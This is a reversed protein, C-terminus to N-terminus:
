LQLIHRCTVYPFTVAPDFPLREAAVVCLCLHVDAHALSPAVHGGSDGVQEVRGIGVGPGLRPIFHWVRLELFAQRLRVGGGSFCDMADYLFTRGAVLVVVRLSAFQALSRFQFCSDHFPAQRRYKPCPSLRCASNGFQLGTKRLLLRAAVIRSPRQKPESEPATQKCLLRPRHPNVWPLRSAVISSLTFASVPQGTRRVV